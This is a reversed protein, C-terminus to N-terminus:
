GTTATLSFGRNPNSNKKVFTISYKIWSVVGYIGTGIVL